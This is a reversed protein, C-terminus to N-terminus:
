GAQRIDVRGSRNCLSPGATRFRPLYELQAVDVCCLTNSGAARLGSGVECSRRPYQPSGEAASAGDSASSCVGPRDASWGPAAVGCVNGCVYIGFGAVVGAERSVECCVVDGARDCFTDAGRHASEGCIDGHVPLATGVVIHLLCCGPEVTAAGCPACFGGSLLCAILDLVIQVWAASAYNEIGFLKFCAALFIPYGPLRILTPYTEGTGVTLAYRGSLM